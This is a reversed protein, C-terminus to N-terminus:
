LSKVLLFKRSFLRHKLRSQWLDLYIAVAETLIIGKKNEIYYKSSGKSHNKLLKGIAPKNESKDVLYWCFSLMCKRNVLNMRINVIVKFLSYNWLLRVKVLLYINRMGFPNCIKKPFIRLGSSLASFGLFHSPLFISDEFSIKSIFCIFITQQAFLLNLM